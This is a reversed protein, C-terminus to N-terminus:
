HKSKKELIWSKEIISKDFLSLIVDKIEFRFCELKSKEEKSNNLVAWQHAAEKHRVIGILLWKM